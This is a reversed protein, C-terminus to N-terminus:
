MIECVMEHAIQYEATPPMNINKSKMDAKHLLSLAKIAKKIPYNKAAMVYQDYFWPNIKLEGAVYNKSKDQLEHYQIIKTFLSYLISIM